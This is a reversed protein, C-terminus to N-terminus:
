MARVAELFKTVEEGLVDGQTALENSANLVEAASKGSEEAALHVGAINSSVEQTGTAAQQVNRSIEQTAAGQEEVASAIASSIESIESITASIGKISEVTGSTAEQMGGIQSAIDETAKATQNALSKVEAAVVAFGKGADGARAAEITANLALLNTQSAIDSILEVVEGIRQAAEALGEITTNTTDAEDVARNSIASSKEVQRGIEEISTSMEEAASAVAQVNATAQESASAVATAKTQTEEATSAMSESSTQLETAASKVMEVVGVVNAEFDDALKLAALKKETIDVANKVVKYPKGDADLVPNYAAQIWVERGSKHLRMFEGAQFEGNRLAEWFQRYEPSQKYAAEVFMSHHKGKIESLEYGLAALFNKNATIITGDLEFEIMAQSAGIGELIAMLGATEAENKLAALKKETIDVANKVVKYPKGDADLVPNYAAQIWVERGSKHLRMFEGAQFEGNRLAEWFQRYEPSQKYAAEVFMSHHKGKIESLEYGLAALFNKNATIITGDLEFEIMAQSAGIGELIAMLGATEAENRDSENSRQGIVRDQKEKTLGRAGIKEALLDQM